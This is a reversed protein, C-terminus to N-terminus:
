KIVLEFELESERVIKELVGPLAAQVSRDIRKGVLCDINEKIAEAMRLYDFGLSEACGDCIRAKQHRRFHKGVYREHGCIKCEM